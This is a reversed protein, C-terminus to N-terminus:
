RRKLDCCWNTERRHVCGASARNSLTYVATVSLEETSSIELSGITIPIPSPPTGGFLLEAIGCRDDMTASHSPVRGAAAYAAPVVSSFYVTNNRTNIEELELV